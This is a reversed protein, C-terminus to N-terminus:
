VYQVSSKGSVYMIGFWPVHALVDVVRREREARRLGRRERGGIFTGHLGTRRCDLHGSRSRRAIAPAATRGVVAQAVPRHRRLDVRGRSACFRHLRRSRNRAESGDPVHVRRHVGQAGEGTAVRSRLTFAEVRTTDPATKLQRLLWNIRTIPRGERPADIDFSCTVKSARLDAAVKLTSVANPIRLEGALVGDSVLRSALASTRIGPNDSEARSLVPVVETGLQRGLRLSAFRLLADFRLAVDTATKDNPRLTGSAVAERLPVWSPGM